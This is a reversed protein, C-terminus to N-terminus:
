RRLPRVLRLVVPAAGWKGTETVRINSGHRLLHTAIPVEIDGLVVAYVVVRALDGERWARIAFRSALLSTGPLSEAPVSVAPGGLYFTDQNLGLVVNMGGARDQSLLISRDEQAAQSSAIGVSSIVVLCVSLANIM